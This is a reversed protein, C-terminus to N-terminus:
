TSLNFRNGTLSYKFAFTVDGIGLNVRSGTTSINADATTAVTGTTLNVRNGTVGMVVDAVDVTGTTLNVQNGTVGFNADASVTVTGTALATAIGNVGVVDAVKLNGISFNTQSGTPLVLANGVITVTNNSQNIQSGLVNVFANPNFGVDSFAASAFPTAGFYM